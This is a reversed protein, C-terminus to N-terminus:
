ILEAAKTGRAVLKMLVIFEADEIETIAEERTNAASWGFGEKDTIVFFDDKEIVYYPAYKLVADPNRKAMSLLFTGYLRIMNKTWYEQNSSM